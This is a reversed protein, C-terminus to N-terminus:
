KTDEYGEILIWEEGALDKNAEDQLERVAEATIDKEYPNLVGANVLGDERRDGHDQSTRSGSPKKLARM